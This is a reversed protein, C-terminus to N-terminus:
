GIWLGLRKDEIPDGQHFRVQFGFPPAHGAVFHDAVKVVRKSDRCPFLVGTWGGAHKLSRQDFPDREMCRDGPRMAHRRAWFDLLASASSRRIVPISISRM